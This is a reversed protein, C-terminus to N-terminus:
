LFNQTAKTFTSLESNYRCRIRNSAGVCKVVGPGEKNTKVATNLELSGLMIDFNDNAIQVRKAIVM